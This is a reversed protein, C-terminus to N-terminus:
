HHGLKAHKCQEPLAASSAASQHERGSGTNSSAVTTVWSAISSAARSIGSASRDKSRSRSRHSSEKQRRDQSIKRTRERKPPQRDRSERDRSSDKTKGSKSDPRYRSMRSEKDQHRGEQERAQERERRHRRHRERSTERTANSDMTRQSDKGRSEGRSARSSYGTSPETYGSADSSKDLAMLEASLAAMDLAIQKRSRPAAPRLTVDSSATGANAQDSVRRSSVYKEKSITSTRSRKKPVMQSISDDPALTALDEQVVTYSAKSSSRIKTMQTQSRHGARIDTRTEDTLTATSSGQSLLVGTDGTESRHGARIDTRSDATTSRAHSSTTPRRSHASRTSINKANSGEAKLASTSSRSRSSGSQITETYGGEAFGQAKSRSEIEAQKRIDKRVAQLEAETLDKEAQEQGIGRSIEPDMGYQSVLDSDRFNQSFQYSYGYGDQSMKLSENINVNTNPSFSTFQGARRMKNLSRLCYELSCTCCGSIALSIELELSVMNGIDAPHFGRTLGDSIWTEAQAWSRRVHSHCPGTLYTRSVTPFHLECLPPM